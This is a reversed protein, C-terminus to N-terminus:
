EFYKRVIEFHSVGTNIEEYDDKTVWHATGHEDSLKLEGGVCKAKFIVLYTNEGHRPHDKPFEWYWVAFPDMVEITLGTEELVERKLSNMLSAPDGDKVENEQIKGGPFDLWGDPTKLILVKGDREILAKQAVFMLASKNDM